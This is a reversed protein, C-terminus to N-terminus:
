RVNGENTHRVKQRAIRVEKVFKELQSHRMGNLKVLFLDAPADWGLTLRGLGPLVHSILSGTSLKERTMGRRVM